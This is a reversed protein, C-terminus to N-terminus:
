YASSIATKSYYHKLIWTWSKGHKAYGLAGNASLGWMHNGAQGPKLGKKKGYPDKVSKLYPYNKRDPYNRTKGDTWSCYAALVPDGKYSIIRGRTDDAAEKIHPHDKEWDYGGYIQSGSDSRIKFGLPKYKTANQIYWDGYTRFITTMVRVHDTPGTGTTEGMGWVYQEIPLKNIVWIQSVQTTSGHYIDDGHYYNMIIKGRFNDYDDGPRHADFILDSNNGDAADFWIEGGVIRDPISSYVKLNGDETYTVRTTLSASVTAIIEGGDSKRINYDKNADIKFPDDKIESKEFYWLGVAIEPGLSGSDTSPQVGGGAALKLVRLYESRSVKPLCKQWLAPDIGSQELKKQWKTVSSKAQARDGFVFFGGATALFIAALLSIFAIKTTKAKQIM